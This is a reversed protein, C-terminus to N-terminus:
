RIIEALLFALSLGLGMAALVALTIFAGNLLGNM